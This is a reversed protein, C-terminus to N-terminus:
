KSDGSSSDGCESIHLNVMIVVDDYYVPSTVIGASSEFPIDNNRWILNGKMDYCGAGLAGFFVFIREGDSVPTPTASSNLAGVGERPGVGFPRVWRPFGNEIDICIVNRELIADNPDGM